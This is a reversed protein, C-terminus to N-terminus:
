GQRRELNWSCLWPICVFSGTINLVNETGQSPRQLLQINLVNVRVERGVNRQIRCTILREPLVKWPKWEEKQGVPLM